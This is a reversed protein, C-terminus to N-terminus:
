ICGAGGYLGHNGKREAVSIAHSNLATKKRSLVVVACIESASLSKLFSDRKDFDDIKSAKEYYEYMPNLRDPAGFCGTLSLVLMVCISIPHLGRGSASRM